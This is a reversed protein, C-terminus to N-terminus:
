VGIVTSAIDFTARLSLEKQEVLIHILELVRQKFTQILNQKENQAKKQGFKNRFIEALTDDLKFMESDSLNDLDIENDSDDAANGLAKIVENKFQEDVEGDDDADIIDDDEDDDKNENEEDVEMEEDAEDDSDDVCFADNNTIADTM